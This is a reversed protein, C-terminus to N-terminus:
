KIQMNLIIENAAVSGTGDVATTICVAIGTSFALGPGFDINTGGGATNGPIIWSHIIGTNCTPSGANNYAHVYRAAANVNSAQIGYLQGASAKVNAANTDATSVRRFPTTGGSTPPQIAVNQTNAPETKQNLETQLTDIKDELSKLRGLMTTATPSAQLEGIRAVFTTDALLLIARDELAKIRGLLTNATPSAQVEGFGAINQNDSPETKANLETQIADLKDEVSKVRGLLTNATPSAQVEGVKNDFNTETLGGGSGCAEFANNAANVCRVALSEGIVAGPGKVTAQLDGPTAQGVVARSPMPAATGQVRVIITGSGAIQPNLRIQFHSFGAMNCLWAKTTVSLVFAVENNFADMRVCSTPYFNSGDDSVEFNLSGATITASARLTVAATSFGAGIIQATSDAATASTWTASSAPIISFGVESGRPARPQAYAHQTLLLLLFITLSRLLRM